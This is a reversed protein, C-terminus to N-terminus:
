QTRNYRYKVAVTAHGHPAMGHGPSSSLRSPADRKGTATGQCNMGIRHSFAFAIRAALHTISCRYFNKWGLFTWSFAKKWSYELFAFHKVIGKKWFSNGSFRPLAQGPTEKVRKITITFYKSAFEIRFRTNGVSVCLM